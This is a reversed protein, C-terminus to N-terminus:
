VVSPPAFDGGLHEEKSSIVENASAPYVSPFSLFPISMGTTLDHKIFSFMTQHSPLHYVHVFFPLHVLYM